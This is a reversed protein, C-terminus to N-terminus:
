ADRWRKLLLLAALLMWWSAPEPAEFLQVEAIQLRGDAFIFTGMGEGIQSFPTCVSDLCYAGTLTSHVGVGYASHAGTLDATIEATATFSPDPEGFGLTEYPGIIDSVQMPFSASWTVLGGPTLEPCPGATGVLGLDDVVFQGTVSGLTCVLQAFTTDARLSIATLLLIILRM